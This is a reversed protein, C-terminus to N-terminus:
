CKTGANNLDSIPKNFLTTNPGFKINAFATLTPGNNLNPNLDLIINSFVYHTGNVFPYNVGLNSLPDVYGNELINKWIYNGDNDINVAYVPIQTDIESTGSINASTITDSFDRLKIPVLPNYKFELSTSSGPCPFTVYYEQRNIVVEEFQTKDYYVLDGDIIQGPVYTLYTNSVVLNTSETSSSNFAKKKLTEGKSVDPKFNFFLYLNMLPKSFSDYQDEIDVGVNFNFSHKQDYFINKGYGSNYIEFNNLFTLIQFKTNYTKNSVSLQTNGTWARCLYVDFCNVVNRTTGNQESGVVPRTFFDSVSTYTKKLGNVVSLFDIDGYVRYQQSAQRENDFLEAVNIVSAISSPTLEKVNNEFNVNLYEDVDISDISRKSGLHIQITEDM